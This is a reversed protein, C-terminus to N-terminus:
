GEIEISSGQAHKRVHIRHGVATKFSEDHTIFLLRQFEKTLAPLSEILQDVGARDVAAFAEDVILTELRAGSRTALLRSLGIRIALDVRAREGGSYNELTREGYCDRVTIDLTEALGDRNKLAKQTQITVQLGASSLRQLLTNAEAEILPIATELIMTPIQGYADSLRKLQAIDRQYQDAEARLRIADHAAAQTKVALEELQALAKTTANLDTRTTEITGRIQGTLTQAAQYDRNTETAHLLALSAAEEETKLDGITVALQAMDLTLGAIERDAQALEQTLSTFAALAKLTHLTARRDIEVLELKRAITQLQTTGTAVTEESAQWAHDNAAQTERLARLTLAPATTSEDAAPRAQLERQREPIRAKAEVAQLTFQCRAQLGEDCPVQALLRSAQEDVQLARELRATENAFAARHRDLQAQATNMELTLKLRDNLALRADNIRTSVTLTEAQLATRQVDLQTLRDQALREEELKADIVTRNQQIKEARLRANTKLVQQGILIGIRDKLGQLKAPLLTAQEAREALRAQNTVAELLAADNHQLAEQLATATLRHTDARRQIDEACASLAAVTTYQGEAIQGLTEAKTVQRGAATKLEAYTDLQLIQALLAKREGPTSRTFRDAQGQVLLGTSTMLDYDLNLLACIKDQTDPIRAGSADTWAGDNAIQLSLESKGQRTHLSRKRIVRYHQGNLQFTISAVMEDAGLRIMQDPAVRCKGFLVWLPADIFLTSKGSGNQGICVAVPILNLDITADAFSGFNHLSISTLLM